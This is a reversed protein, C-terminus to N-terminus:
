RWQDFPTWDHWVQITRNTSRDAPNTEWVFVGQERLHRNKFFNQFSRYAYYDGAYLRNDKRDAYLYYTNGNQKVATFQNEPLARLQARRARTNAPQARFGSTVLVQEIQTDAPAAANAQLPQVCFAACIAIGAAIPFYQSPRIRM